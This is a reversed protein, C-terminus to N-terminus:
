AAPKRVASVECRRKLPCSLCQVGPAKPFASVVPEGAAVRRIRERMDDATAVIAAWGKQFAVQNFDAVIPHMTRLSLVTTRIRAPKYDAFAEAVLSRLFLAKVDQQITVGTLATDQTRYDIVELIGDARLCVRDAVASALIGSRFRRWILTREVALDHVANLPYLEKVFARLMTQAEIMLAEPVRRKGVGQPGAVEALLAVIADEGFPQGRGRRFFEGLTRHVLQDLLAHGPTPTNAPLEEVYRRAYSYPCTRFADLAEPTLELPSPGVLATGRRKSRTPM